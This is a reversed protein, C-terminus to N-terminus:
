LWRVPDGGFSFGSLDPAPPGGLAAPDGLLLVAEGDGLPFTGPDGPWRVSHGPGLWTVARWPFQALWLFVQAARASPLTTAMALEIRAYEGADAVRQEVAPMRQCSMGVTSLVTYPRGPAPPYESMSVVPQRGLAADWYHAGPGFAAGLHALVAQQFAEWAREDGRWRWFARARRTRPALGEIADALSWGFPTRGIVGRSYGPMSRAADAWGPIVSLLEGNELVAVGDGEEFWVAELAAPDPPPLGDPYRTHAAPMVPVQGPGMAARDVAHPAPQHNAIWALAIVQDSDHLYAATALGDCAITLRRSEYPSVTEFLTDARRSRGSAPHSTPM